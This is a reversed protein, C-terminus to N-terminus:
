NFTELHGERGVEPIELPTLLDPPLTPKQPTVRFGDYGGQTFPTHHTKPIIVTM